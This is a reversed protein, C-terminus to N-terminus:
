KNKTPVICFIHKGSILTPITLTIAKKPVEDLSKYRGDHVQQMRSMHDLEVTKIMKPDNFKGIGPDNFAIHANEGIGMFVVDIAHKKLLKEYRECEAESEKMGDMYYNNKTNIKNFVTERLYSSFSNQNDI